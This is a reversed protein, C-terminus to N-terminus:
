SNPRSNAVRPLALALRAMKSNRHQQKSRQQQVESGSCVALSRVVSLLISVASCAAPNVFYMCSGSATLRLCCCGMARLQALAGM